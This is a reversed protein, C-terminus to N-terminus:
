IKSCLVYSFYTYPQLIGKYFDTYYLLFQTKNIRSVLEGVAEGTSESVWGGNM